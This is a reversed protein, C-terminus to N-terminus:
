PEERQGCIEEPLVAGTLQGAPRLHHVGQAGRQRGAKHHGAQARHKGQDVDPLHEDIGGAQHNGRQHEGADGNAEHQETGTQAHVLAPGGHLSGALDAAHGVGQDAADLFDLQRSRFLPGKGPPCPSVGFLHLM